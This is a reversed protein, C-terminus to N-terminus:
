VKRTIIVFPFLLRSQIPVRKTLTRLFIRGYAPAEREAWQIQSTANGMTQTRRSSGYIDSRTHVVRSVAVDSYDLESKGKGMVSGSFSRGSRKTNERRRKRSTGSHSCVPAFDEDGSKINEGTESQARIRSQADLEM